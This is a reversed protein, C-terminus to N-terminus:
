IGLYNTGAFRSQPVLLSILLGGGEGTLIILGFFHWRTSRVAIEYVHYIVVKGRFYLITKYISVIGPICFDIINRSLTTIRLMSKVCLYLPPSVLAPSFLVGLCEQVGPLSRYVLRPFARSRSTERFLVRRLSNVLMPFAAHVEQAMFFSPLCTNIRTHLGTPSFPFVGTVVFM